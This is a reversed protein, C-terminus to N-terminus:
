VLGSDHKVADVVIFIPKHLEERKLPLSDWEFM